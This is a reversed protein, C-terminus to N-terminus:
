EESESLGAIKRWRRMQAGEDELKTGNQLGDM